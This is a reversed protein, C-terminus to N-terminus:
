FVLLLLSCYWCPLLLLLKRAKYTVERRYMYKHREKIQKLIM